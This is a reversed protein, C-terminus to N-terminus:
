VTIDVGHTLIAMSFNEVIIEKMMVEPIRRLETYELISLTM